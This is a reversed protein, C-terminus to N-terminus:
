PISPIRTPPMRLYQALPDRVASFIGQSSSYIVLSGDPNWQATATHPEIYDQHFTNTHFDDEVIVDCQAWAAAVDGMAAQLHTAINTPGDSQADKPTGLPESTKLDPHLITAGPAM